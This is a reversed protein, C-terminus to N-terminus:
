KHLELDLNIWPTPSLFRHGDGATRSKKQERSQVKRITRSFEVCFHM